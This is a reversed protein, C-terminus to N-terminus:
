KGRGETAVSRNEFSTFPHFNFLQRVHSSKPLAATITVSNLMEIESLYVRTEIVQTVQCAIM